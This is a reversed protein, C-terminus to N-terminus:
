LTPSLHDVKANMMFSLISDPTSISAIQEDQRQCYKWKQEWIPDFLRLFEGVMELDAWKTSVLAGAGTGRLVVNGKLHSVVGEFFSGPAKLTSAQAGAQDGGFVYDLVGGSGFEQSRSLESGSCLM